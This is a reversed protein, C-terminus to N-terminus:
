VNSPEKTAAAPPCLKDRLIKSVNNFTLFPIDAPTVPVAPVAPIEPRAEQTVVGTEDKQEKVAPVAAIAEVKNMKLACERVKKAWSMIEESLSKVQHPELDRGHFRDFKVNTIQTDFNREFNMHATEHKSNMANVMSIAAEKAKM